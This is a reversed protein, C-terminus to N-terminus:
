HANQGRGRIGALTTQEQIHGESDLMKGIQGGAMISKDRRGSTGLRKRTDRANVYRARPTSATKHTTATATGTPRTYTHTARPGHTHAHAKASGGRAASTAEKM